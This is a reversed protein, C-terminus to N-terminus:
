PWQIVGVVPRHDSAIREGLVTSTAKISPMGRIVIYDIEVKPADAPWTLNPNLKPIIFGSQRALQMTPSDPEANYDGAVIVPHKRVALAKDLAKFQAVRLSSKTWDLHISAFSIPKGNVMAEVELVVRPEAGVPLRHIHSKLIPYKSLVALGYEGGDYDMFKAFNHYMGLLEGLVMAQNVKGSRNVGKDVEQLAVFDPKESRIVDAIRPLDVADDMGEGHHINYALVRLEGSFGWGILLLWCFFIKMKTGSGYGSKIKQKV